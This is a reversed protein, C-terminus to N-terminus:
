IILDTLSMIAGSENKSSYFANQQQLEHMKITNVDQNAQSCSVCNLYALDTNTGCFCLAM